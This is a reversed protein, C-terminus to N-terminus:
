ELSDHELLALLLTLTAAHWNAVNKMYIGVINNGGATVGIAKKEAKVLFLCKALSRPFFICTTPFMFGSSIRRAQQGHWSRGAM